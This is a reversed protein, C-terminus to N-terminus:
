MKEAPQLEIIATGICQKYHQSGATVERTLDLKGIGLSLEGNKIM